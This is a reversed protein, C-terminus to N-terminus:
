ERTKDPITTRREEIDRDTRVDVELSDDRVLDESLYNSEHGLQDPGDRVGGRFAMGTGLRPVYFRGKLHTTLWHRRQTVEKRTEHKDQPGSRDVWLKRDGWEEPDM